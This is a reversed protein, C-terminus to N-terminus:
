YRPKQQAYKFIRYAVLFSLIALPIELFLAEVLASSIARHTRATMVDFWSDIILTTGLMISTLATWNSRRFALIASLAFLICLFADFGVWTIDWHQSIYKPPLVISLLITWPILFGCAAGYVLTYWNPFVHKLQREDYHKKLRTSVKM